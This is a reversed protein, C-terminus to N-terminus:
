RNQAVLVHPSSVKRAVDRFFAKERMMITSEANAVLVFVDADSCNEDIWDNFSGAIDVGPTDVIVLDHELLPCRSSPWNLTVTTSTTLHTASLAHSLDHLSSVPTELLDDSDSM